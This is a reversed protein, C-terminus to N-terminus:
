APADDIKKMGSFLLALLFLVVAGILIYMLLTSNWFPKGPSTSFASNPQEPGLKLFLPTPNKLNALIAVIDYRPTPLDGSYYMKLSIDSKSPIIFEAAYANRSCQVTIVDIPPADQNHIVLKLFKSRTESFNIKMSSKDCSGVSIKMINGDCVRNWRKKDDSSYVTLGRSFNVSSTTVDMRIIPQKFTKVVVVTDQKKVSNALIESEANEVLPAQKIM